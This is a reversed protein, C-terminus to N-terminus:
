TLRRGTLMLFIFLYFALSVLVCFAANINMRPHKAEASRSETAIHARRTM